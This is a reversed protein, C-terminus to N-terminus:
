GNDRLVSMLRGSDFLKLCADVVKADYLSGNHQTIEEVAEEIRYAPRYPRQSTMAEVVDAVALIRAWLTIDEGRLGQPYGSGNIREHHQLVAQAVASPLGMARCINYGTEPHARIIGFEIDTLETSKSLVEPRLCVKGIDHLLATMYIGCIQMERLGLEKAMVRALYAVRQQHQGNCVGNGVDAM